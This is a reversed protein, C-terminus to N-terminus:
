MKCLPLEHCHCSVKQQMFRSHVGAQLYDLVVADVAEDLEGILLADVGQLEKVM